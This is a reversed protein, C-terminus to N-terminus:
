RTRRGDQLRFWPGRRSRYEQGPTLLPRSETRACESRYLTTWRQAGPRLVTDGDPIRSDSHLDSPTIRRRKWWWVM